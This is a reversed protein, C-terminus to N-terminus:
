GVAKSIDLVVVKGANTYSYLHQTNGNMDTFTFDPAPFSPQANSEMAFFTIALFVTIPLLKKM